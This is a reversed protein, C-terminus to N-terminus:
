SYFFVFERRLGWIGRFTKDRNKNIDEYIDRTILLIENRKPIVFTKLTTGETQPPTRADLHFFCSSCYCYYYGFAAVNVLVGIVNNVVFVDAVIVLLLLSPFLLM